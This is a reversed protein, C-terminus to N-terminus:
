MNTTGDGPICCRIKIKIKKKLGGAIYYAEPKSFLSKTKSM